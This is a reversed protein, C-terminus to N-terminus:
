HLDERHSKAVNIAERTFRAGNAFGIRFEEANVVPNTLRPEPYEPASEFDIIRAILVGSAADRLEIVLKMKGATRVLTREGVVRGAEPAAIDLNLVAADVRIVDPAPQEALPFGGRRVLERELEGRFSRAMEGRIREVDEDDLKPHDKEWGKRFTVPISGSIIVRRYGAFSVDPARYVGVRRSSPVRILGDETVEPPDEAAAHSTLLPATLGLLLAIAIFRMADEAAYAHLTRRRM